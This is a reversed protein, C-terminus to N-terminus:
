SDSSALLTLSISARAQTHSDLGCCCSTFKPLRSPVRASTIALGRQKGRQQECKLTRLHQYIHASKILSRKWGLLDVDIETAASSAGTRSAVSQALPQCPCRFLLCGLRHSFCLCCWVALNVWVCFCLALSWRAMDWLLRCSLLDPFRLFTLPPLATSRSRPIGFTTVCQYVATVSHPEPSRLPARGM